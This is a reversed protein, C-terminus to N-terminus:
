SWEGNEDVPGNGHQEQWLRAVTPWVVQHPFGRRLLHSGLKQRFTREDLGALRQARKKGARYASDSSDVSRLVQDIIEEALGKERLEHRLALPGRPGFRERDDVWFRAFAEDDLYGSDILREIVRDIVPQPTEHRRLMREVEAVSRPRYSLFRVSREYAKAEQDQMRLRAIDDDSLHQGRRLQAALMAPLALAYQGDLYVNVREHNRKQFRLATITGAM